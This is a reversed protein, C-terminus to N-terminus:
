EAWSRWLGLAVLVGDRCRDRCRRCRHSIHELSPSSSISDVIGGCCIQQFCIVSHLVQRGVSSHYFHTFPDTLSFPRRWTKRAYLEAGRSCNHSWLITNYNITTQKSETIYVLLWQLNSPSCRRSHKSPTLLLIGFYRNHTCLLFVGTKRLLLSESMSM